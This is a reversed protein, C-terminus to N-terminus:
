AHRAKRRRGRGEHEEPQEIDPAPAEDGAEVAVEDPQEVETVPLEKHPHRPTPEAAAEVQISVPHEEAVPVRTALAVKLLGATLRVELADPSRRAPKRVWTTHHRDMQWSEPLMLRGVRCDIHVRPDAEEPLQVELTCGDLHADLQIHRPAEYRVDCGVAYLALPTDIGYLQMRCGTATVNMPTHRPILLYGRVGVMDLVVEAPGETIRVPLGITNVVMDAGEHRRIELACGSVNMVLRRDRGELRQERKVMETTSRLAETAGQVANHVASEILRPLSPSSSGKAPPPNGAEILDCAQQATLRGESVMSIIRLMDENSM